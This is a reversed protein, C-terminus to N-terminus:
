FQQWWIDSKLALICWITQRSPSRGLGRQPLKCREGLSGLQITPPRSRLPLPLSSFPLSPLPPYLLPRSSLLLCPRPLLPIPFSPAPDAGWALAQGGSSNKQRRRQPSREGGVMRRTLFGPYIIKRIIYFYQRLNWDGSYPARVNCVSSLPVCSSMYRVHFTLERESFLLWNNTGESIKLAPLSTIAHWECRNSYSTV